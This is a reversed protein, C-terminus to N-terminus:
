LADGKFIDVPKNCYSDSKEILYERLLDHLFATSAEEGTNIFKWVPVADIMQELIDRQAIIQKKTEPYSVFETFLSFVSESPALRIVSNDTGQELLIIGGLKSCRDRFGFREKGRWPSSYAYVSGDERCELGTKDGNIIKTEDSYLNIWNIIQTSKGTGSPATMIWALDQWIFSVCHFLACRHQLLFNGTAHMLTQYELFEVPVSDDVLWRNEKMYQKTVKIDFSDDDSLTLYKGFYRYTEPYNFVYRITKGCINIQYCKESLDQRNEGLSNMCM